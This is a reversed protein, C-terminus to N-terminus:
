INWEKVSTNPHDRSTVSSKKKQTREWKIRSRSDSIDAPVGNQSQRRDLGFEPTASFERPMCSKWNINLQIQYSHSNKSAVRGLPLGPGFPVTSHIPCHQLKMTSINLLTHLVRIFKSWGIHGERPLIKRLSSPRM